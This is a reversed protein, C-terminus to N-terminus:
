EFLVSIVVAWGCRVHDLVAARFASTCVVFIQQVDRRLQRGGQYRRCAFSNLRPRPHRCPVSSWCLIVPVSFALVYTDLDWRVGKRSARVVVVSSLYSHLPPTPTIRFGASPTHHILAGHPCSVMWVSPSSVGHRSMLPFPIESPYSM